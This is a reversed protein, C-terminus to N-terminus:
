FRATTVKYKESLASILEPVMVVTQFAPGNNVEM